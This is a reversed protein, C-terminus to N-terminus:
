NDGLNKNSYGAFLKFFLCISAVIFNIHVVAFSLCLILFDYIPNKAQLRTRTINWILLVPIVDSFCFVQILLKLFKPAVLRLNWKSQFDKRSCCINEWNFRFLSAIQQLLNELFCATVLLM